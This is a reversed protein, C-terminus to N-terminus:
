RLQQAEAEREAAEQRMDELIQKKMIFRKSTEIYM